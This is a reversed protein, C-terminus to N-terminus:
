FSLQTNEFRFHFKDHLLQINVSRLPKLTGLYQSSESWCFHKIFTNRSFLTFDNLVKQTNKKLIVDDMAIKHTNYTKYKTNQRRHDFKAKSDNLQFWVGQNLPQPSTTVRLFYFLGNNYHNPVWSSIKGQSTKVLKNIFSSYMFTNISVYVLTPYSIITNWHNLGGSFRFTRPAVHTQVNIQSMNENFMVQKRHRFVHYDTM